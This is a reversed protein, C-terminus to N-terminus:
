ESTNPKQAPPFSDVGERMLEAQIPGTGCQSHPCLEHVEVSINLAPIHIFLSEGFLCLGNM